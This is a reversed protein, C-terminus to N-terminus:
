RGSLLITIVPPMNSYSGDSGFPGQVDKHATAARALAMSESATLLRFSSAPKWFAFAIQSEFANLLGSKEPVVYKSLVIANLSLLIFKRSSNKWDPMRPAFAPPAPVSSKAARASITFFVVWSQTGTVQIMFRRSTSMASSVGARPGGGPVGVPGGGPVGVPGGPVAVARTAMGWWLSAVGACFARKSSMAARQNPQPSVLGAGSSLPTLSPQFPKYLGPVSSLRM